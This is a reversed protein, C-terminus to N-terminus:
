ARPRRKDIGLSKRMLTFYLVKSVFAAPWTPITSPIKSDIM